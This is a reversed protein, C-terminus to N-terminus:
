KLVKNGLEVVVGYNAADVESLKTAGPQAQELIAVAADRGKAKSVAFVVTKAQDYTVEAKAEAKKVEAKAKPAPKEAPADTVVGVAIKGRDVGALDALRHIAKTLDEIKQELSM